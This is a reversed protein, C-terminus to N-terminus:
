IIQHEEGYWLPSRSFDIFKAEDELLLRGAQRGEETATAARLDELSEWWLEAVGDYIAPAAELSGARSVRAGDNEAWERTHLQVYRKIRLDGAVSKVLPAHKNLWYDQFEELGLEDRKTLCFTIRIM